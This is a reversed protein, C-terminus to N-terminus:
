PASYDSHTCAPSASAGAWAMMSPVFVSKAFVVKDPLGQMASWVRRKPQGYALSRACPADTLAYKRARMCSHPRMRAHTRAHSRTRDIAHTRSHPEHPDHHAPAHAITRTLVTLLRPPAPRGAAKQVRARRPPQRRRAFDARPLGHANRRRDISVVHPVGLPRAHPVTPADCAFLARRAGRAVARPAWGVHLTARTTCRETADHENRAAVPCAGGALVINSAIAARVDSNCKLLADLLISCM